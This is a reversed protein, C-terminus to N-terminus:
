IFLFKTTTKSICYINHACASTFNFSILVKKANGDKNEVSGLVRQFGRFLQSSTPRKSQGRKQGFWYSSKSKKKSVHKHITVM